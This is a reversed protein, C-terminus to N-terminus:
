PHAPDFLRLARMDRAMAPDAPRARHLMSRNDWILLDDARWRHAYVHRAITARALLGDLLAQSRAEDLDGVCQVYSGISLAIRGTDPHQLTMPREVPSYGPADQEWGALGYKRRSHAGSHLCVLQDLQRREDEALIDWLLRTDCFETDGGEIPVQRAYLMSLSARPYQFTLDSHWLENARNQLVNADNAELLNGDAAVNTLSVVGTAVHQKGFPIKLPVIEGPLSVAFDHIDGDSLGHQDRLVLVGYQVVADYVSTASAAPNKAVNAGTMEAGVLETLPICNAAM